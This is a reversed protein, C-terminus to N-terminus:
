GPHGPFLRGGPGGAGAGYAPHFIFGDGYAVKYKHPLQIPPPPDPLYNAVGADILEFLTYPPLNIDRMVLYAGACSGLYVGGARVFGELGRAGEKGLERAM